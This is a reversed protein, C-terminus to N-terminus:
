FGIAHSQFSCFGFIATQPTLVPLSFNTMFVTKLKCRLRKVRLCESFLDLVTEEDVKCFYHYRSLLKILFFYLSLEKLKIQQGFKIFLSRKFM